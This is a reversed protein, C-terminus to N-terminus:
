HSHPGRFLSHRTENIVRYLTGFVKPKPTQDLPELEQLNYRFQLGDSFMLLYAGRKDSPDFDLVIGTRGPYPSHISNRVRASEGPNFTRPNMVYTSVTDM